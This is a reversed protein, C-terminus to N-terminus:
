SDTSPGKAKGGSAIAVVSRCYSSASLL